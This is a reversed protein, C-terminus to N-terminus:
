AADRELEERCHRCLFKRAATFMEQAVDGALYASEEGYPDIGFATAVHRCLHQMEHTWSNLFEAETSALSIVMVTDRRAFNSYTIGTNLDGERLSDWARRLQGGSCGADRLDRVIDETRYRHVSYYVRVHWKYRKLWFDQVIMTM